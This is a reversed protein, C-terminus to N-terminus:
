LVLWYLHDLLFPLPMCDMPVSTKRAAVPDISFITNCNEKCQVLKNETFFVSTIEIEGLEPGKPVYHIINLNNLHLQLIYDQM